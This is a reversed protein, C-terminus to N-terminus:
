HAASGNSAPAVPGPARADAVLVTVNDSGGGANALEVLKACSAMSPGASSLVSSIEVDSVHKTLGDSCFLLRDGLELDLKLIQPEPLASDGGLSNWLMHHLESSPDVPTLAEDLVKQAMTHDVTLRSLNGARLLYLRTDGVHAVHLVPWLVLGMTLTTGMRPTTSHMAALKVSSDGLAVASSLQPRVDSSEDNSPVPSDAWPMVNLLYSAVTNVAVRSAVDGGGEGGLGDAVMLLVGTPAGRFTAHASQPSADYVTLSRQLTAILFADENDPRSRGVNSMGAADIGGHVGMAISAFQNSTPVRDLVLQRLAARLTGACSSWTEASIARHDTPSEMSNFSVETLNVLRPAAQEGRIARM